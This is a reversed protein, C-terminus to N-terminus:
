RTREVLALQRPLCIRKLDYREIISKRAAERLAAYRDPHALCEAVTAALREKDFFDVLLGNKGDEIVEQVPPTASGVVLCGASMAELCSWSLVFPYTLYVHCASIQLLRIFLPYPINGLFFIRSLDLREKVEDLFIEKWTKGEPAKAGYSVGDGGLILTVAKPRLRQIEPLARMFTHYGRYPELNRNVFTLVEDGARVVPGDQGLRLAAASDPVVLDTDIGDHVVSIREHCWAPFSAKQWETPSYGADIAELALLIYANKCRLRADALWGPSEFEPDFGVDAGHAAYYFELFAISFTGPWINKLFLTEGWGPHGVVVDPAYGKLRLADCARGCADGRIVKTEFESAWLHIERSTGRNPNYRNLLVGPTEEGQIALARIEHGRAALAPALHKFQGPFNQHIFLIKM